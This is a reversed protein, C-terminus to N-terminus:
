PKVGSFTLIKGRLWRFVELCEGAPYQGYLPVCQAHNYYIPQAHVLGPVPVPECRSSSTVVADDTRQRRTVHSTADNSNACIVNNNAVFLCCRQFNYGSKITIAILRSLESRPSLVKEVKLFDFVPLLLRWYTPNSNKQWQVTQVCYVHLGIFM